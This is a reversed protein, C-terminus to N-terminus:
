IANNDNKDDGILELYIYKEGLVNYISKKLQDINTLGDKSIQVLVKEYETHGFNRRIKILINFAYNILYEENFNNM